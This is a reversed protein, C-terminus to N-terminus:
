RQQQPRLRPLHRISYFVAREKEHNVDCLFDSKGREIREEDSIGQESIWANRALQLDDRLMEAARFRRPLNFAPAHPLKTSFRTRLTATMAATLMQTHQRRRKVYKAASTVTGREGALNCDACKLGPRDSIPKLKYVSEDPM